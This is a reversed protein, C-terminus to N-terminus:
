AMQGFALGAGHGLGQLLSVKIDDAAPIGFVQVPEIM